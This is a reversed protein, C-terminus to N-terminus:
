REEGGSILPHVVVAIWIADRQAHNRVRRTRENQHVARYYDDPREVARL